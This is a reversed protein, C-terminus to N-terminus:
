KTFRLVIKDKNYGLVIKTNKPRFFSAFVFFCGNREQECPSLNRESFGDTNPFELRLSTSFIKIFQNGYRANESIIKGLRFYLMILENNAHQMVNYRTALIDQKAQLILDKFDKELISLIM